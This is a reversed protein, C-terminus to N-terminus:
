QMRRRTPTVWCTSNASNTVQVTLTFPEPLPVVPNPLNAGRGRVRVRAPRPIGIRGAHLVVRTLSDVNGAKNEYIHGWPRAGWNSRPGVMASGVLAGNLYLCLRYTTTATPDGFVTAETAAGNIFRFRLRDKTDDDGDRFAILSREPADCARPSPLCVGPRLLILADRDPLNVETVTAGDNVDPDQTGLIKRFEGGLAVTQPSWTGNVLVIGNDFDRRFLDAGGVYFEVEDLWVDPEEWGLLFYVPTQATTRVEFDLTYQRWGSTLLLSTSYDGVQVGIERREGARAFFRLTYEQGAQLDVAPSEVRIDEPQMTTTTIVAHLSAQGAAATSTDRELTAQGDGALTVSWGDVDVEFHGNVMRNQAPDFSVLRQPGGLPYGLYGTHAAKQATDAGPPVAQGTALDVAYEDWWWDGAKKCVKQGYYGDSLVASGFSFRFLSNPGGACNSDYYVQTPQKNIIESYHPEYGAEENWLFYTDLFADYQSTDGNPDAQGGIVPFGEMQNGNLYEFGRTDPVGGTLISDPGLAQRLRRLLEVMGEGWANEGPTVMGGDALGDNNVDVKPVMWYLTTDFLVGDFVHENPPNLNQALWEAMVQNFQRGQEDPPCLTSQNYSWVTNDDEAGGAGPGHVAMRSGAPHPIATSSYGRTVTLTKNVQDVAEILVHEAHAWFAPEQPTLTSTIATGDWIMAYNGADFKGGQPIDTLQIINTSENVGEALTAYPYFLWHGPFTEALPIQDEDRQHARAPFHRLIVTERRRTRLERARELSRGTGSVVPYKTLAEVATDQDDLVGFATVRPYPPNLLAPFVGDPYLLLFALAALIAAKFVEGPGYGPRPCLKEALVPRLPTAQDEPGYHGETLAVNGVAQVEQLAM